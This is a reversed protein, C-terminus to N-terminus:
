STSRQKISNANKQNLSYDLKAYANLYKEYMTSM